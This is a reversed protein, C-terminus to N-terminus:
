KLWIRMEPLESMLLKALPIESASTVVVPRIAAIWSTSCARSERRDLTQEGAHLLEGGCENIAHLSFAFSDKEATM